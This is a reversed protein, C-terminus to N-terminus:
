YPFYLSILVDGVKYILNGFSKTEIMHNLPMLCDNSRLGSKNLGTKLKIWGRCNLSVLTIFRQLFAYTNLGLVTPMNLGALLCVHETNCVASSQENVWIQEFKNSPQRFECMNISSSSVFKGSKRPHRSYSCISELFVNWRVYALFLIFPRAKRCAQKFFFLM